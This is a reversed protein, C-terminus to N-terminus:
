ALRSTKANTHTVIRFFFLGEAKTVLQVNAPVSSCAYASHTRLRTAACLAKELKLEIGATTPAAEFTAYALDSVPPDTVVELALLM